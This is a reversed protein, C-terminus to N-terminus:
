WIWGGVFLILVISVGFVIKAGRRGGELSEGIDADMLMHRVGACLHILSVSLLGWIILKALPADLVSQLEAFSEPSALSRDLIWLLIPLGLFILVGTIRHTISLIAPVPQKITKLDLNVPRNDNVTTM